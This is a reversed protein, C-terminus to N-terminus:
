RAAGLGADRATAVAASRSRVGLKAFVVSVNNRVTKESLHLRRAIAANTLGEAVLGLVERERDTLDPFAMRAPDPPPEAWRRRVGGAVGRGVVVGGQAVHRIARDIEARDADKLLYGSAGARLAAGVTEDEDLMTLALVAPGPRAACLTRTADIGDVGPMQLDMLVVDPAIERALRVAEAGDAAEGVPEIGAMTRLAGRLGERYLPHDDVILVRVPTPLGSPGAPQGSM